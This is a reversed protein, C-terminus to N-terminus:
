QLAFRVPVAVWVAVPRGASLAPKFRWQRVSAVAADDLAPVSHVIRCDGVSGDELVLVQLMVVGDTGARRAEDPYIPAVKTVVEPLEDIYVYDGFEPRHGPPPVVVDRPKEIPGKGSTLRRWRQVLQGARRLTYTARMSPSEPDSWDITQEGMAGGPTDPRDRHRFVGRYISGDLIGVGEWGDPSTVHFFDGFIRKVRVEAAGGEVSYVGEIAPGLAQKGAGSAPTLAPPAPAPPEGSGPAPRLSLVVIAALLLLARERRNTRRKERAIMQTGGISAGVELRTFRKGCDIM